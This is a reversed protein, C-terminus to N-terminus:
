TAFTVPLLKSISTPLGRRRLANTTANPIATTADVGISSKAGLESHCKRCFGDIDLERVAVWRGCHRCNERPEM